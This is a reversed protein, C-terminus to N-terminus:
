TNKVIFELNREGIKRWLSVVAPHSEFFALGHAKFAAVALASRQVYESRGSLLFAEHMMLQERTLNGKKEQFIPRHVKRPTLQELLHSLEVQSSGPGDIAWERLSPARDFTMKAMQEVKEADKPRLGSISRNTYNILSMAPNPIPLTIGRLSMTWTELSEPNMEVAFPFLSKIYSDESEYRDSLFTKFVTFGLPRSLQKKLIDASRMGFVSAELEKGVVSTVISEVDKIDDRNSSLVLVDIDRLSGDPRRSPMVLSDPAILTKTQVDIVTDPHSLAVAGIGGIIQVDPLRESQLIEAIPRIIHITDTM